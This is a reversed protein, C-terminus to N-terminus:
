DEQPLEELKVVVKNFFKALQRIQDVNLTLAMESGFCVAGGDDLVLGDTHLTVEADNNQAVPLKVIVQATGHNGNPYLEHVLRKPDVFKQKVKQLGAVFDQFMKQNWAGEELALEAQEQLLEPSSHTM